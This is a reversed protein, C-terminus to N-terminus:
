NVATPTPEAEAPAPQEAPPPPMTRFDLLEIEFVLNANPPIIGGGAGAEGYALDAPIVLLRKGGVKMTAIGEDWGPIVHGAGLQFVFPQGRDLSSDFKKGTEALWGTYHAQIADGAKPSDGEGEVLDLYQLGSDTTTLSAADYEPPSDPAGPLVGVVEVQFYLDANPPIAGGAGQEGYALQPPIIMNAKDGIKLLSVGEDWGPIVQGKGLLFSIPEGRTYSNDFETGDVLSGIYNVQVVQGAELPDGDGAEVIAYKLGSATETMGAATFPPNAPKAEVPAPADAAPAATTAEAPAAAPAETPAEQPVPTNETAPAPTAEASGCAPLAVLLGIILLNKLNM